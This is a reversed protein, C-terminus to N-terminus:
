PWLRTQIHVTDCCSCSIELGFVTLLQVPYNQVERGGQFGCLLVKVVRRVGTYLGRWRLRLGGGEPQLIGCFPSLPFLCPQLM